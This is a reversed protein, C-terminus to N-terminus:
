GLLTGKIKCLPVVLNSKNTVSYSGDIISNRFRQKVKCLIRSLKQYSLTTYNGEDQLSEKKKSSKWKSAQFFTRQHFLKRLLMLKRAFKEASWDSKCNLIGLRSHFKYDTSWYFKRDPIKNGIPSTDGSVIFTPQWRLSYWLERSNIIWLGLM